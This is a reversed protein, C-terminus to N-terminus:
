IIKSSIGLKEISKILLSNPEVKISTSTTNLIIKEKANFIRVQLSKNGPHAAMVKKLQTALQNDIISNDIILELGNVKESLEQLSTISKILPRYEDKEYRKDIVGSICVITKPYYYNRFKDFDKGFIAFEYAGDYGILHLMCWYSGSKTPKVTASEIIGAVSFTKGKHLEVHEFMLFSSPAFKNILYKYNDLPHSSVYMGLLDKEKSLLDVDSWEINGEKPLEPRNLMDVTESFDGFLSNVSMAKETKFITGYNYLKDLFTSENDSAKYKYLSRNFGSLSDFAGVDILNEVVKRGVERSDVREIFDFIDKYQGNAERERIISESAGTGIGKIASLGFRINENKDVSFQLFSDNIDPGQIVIGMKNCEDTFIAIKKIDSFNRSLVAAMFESPYHAKLYATQYSVYAYCTSHSKNFAYSAFAEWKTWILNSKEEDYGNRVAGEMFDTKLADLESRKKKGMAKRLKDAQGKTFGAILQSLLMVQEQYVTIGYTDGLYKDIGPLDYEIAMTGKKRAIFDPIHDMPGPRYLANMAILDEFRNPRLEKLHKKMGASEFQFIGTTGGNSYLEFTKEDTLSITDINIDINKSIKIFKVCDMIISLTRLGLFDMKLLGVSEVYHGDYQVINLDIGSTRSIPVYNELDDKGIIIGCAHVGTQRVSGELADAYRLTNKILPNESNREDALEKVEKYAAKLTTGPREPVLKSLRNSEGLDLQQVRAVDRISNKAGMRGFTVLHAVRASGYKDVVYKMVKERGDEDFDIDIDPMSIREPNLFREFLLDFRIPDINTILLCYAVVSGAASGRGPGVSVGINRGAKIFDWVILFYGPFGMNEITELEFDIRERIEDTMKPYRIKAGEYTIHILYQCQKAIPLKDVACFIKNWKLENDAVLRDVEEISSCADISAIIQQYESETTEKIIMDDIQNLASKLALNFSSKFKDLDMIFDDPLPFDPMFPGHNLNITQIKNAIEETNYILEPNNAFMLMMEDTSKLYEQGSYRMRDLDSLAKNTTLCILHDHAISDNANIFHVDNSAICKVGLEEGFQLLNRNVMTQIDFVESGVEPLISKHLQLELYFDDKFISKFWMISEKAKDLQNNRILRPIEGGICASCCIIGESYKEILEKDIRPRAYFGETYSYSVMKILNHYGIDNKALFIIHDGGRDEKVDKSKDHRTRRAVYCECGLIPKIGNKIAVEHFQKVGFMNGHDTIAISTMGLEKVKAILKNIESAGDLISYQTHVHLHTFNSM